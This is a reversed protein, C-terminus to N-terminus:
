KTVFYFNLIVEKVLKIKSGEMSQSRDVAAVLDIPARSKRTDSEHFPAKITAM